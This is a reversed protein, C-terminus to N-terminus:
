RMAAECYGLLLTLYALSRRSMALVGCWSVSHCYRFARLLRMAPEPLLRVKWVHGVCEPTAAYAMGNGCVGSMAKGSM